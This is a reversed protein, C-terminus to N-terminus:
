RTSKKLRVNKEAELWDTIENGPTNDNMRKIYNYYALIRIEDQFGSFNSTIENKKKKNRLIGIKSVPQETRNKKSLM